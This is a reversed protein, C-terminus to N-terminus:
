CNQCAHKDVQHMVSPLSVLTWFQADKPGWLLETNVVVYVCSWGDLGGLILAKAPDHKWLVTGAWAIMLRRLILRSVSVSRTRRKVISSLKKRPPSAILSLGGSLSAVRNRKYSYLHAYAEASSHTHTFSKLAGLTYCLLKCGGMLICWIDSMDMVWIM